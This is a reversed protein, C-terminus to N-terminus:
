IRYRSRTANFHQKIEVLSLARSYIQGTSIYGWPQNPYSMWRHTNGAAGYAVSATLDWDNIYINSVGSNTVLTWMSWKNELGLTGANLGFSRFAGDFNGILNTADQLLIPHKASTRWLTRWTAVQTDALPRAWSIFTHATPLTYNISAREAYQTATTFDFCPVNDVVSLSSVVNLTHTIKNRSLDYWSSGSGPYSASNFTDLYLELSNDIIDPGSAAAM